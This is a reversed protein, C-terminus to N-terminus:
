ITKYNLGQKIPSPSTIPSDGAKNAKFNQNGTYSTVNFVLTVETVLWDGSNTPRNFKITKPTSNIGASPVDGSLVYECDTLGPNQCDVLGSSTNAIGDNSIEIPTPPKGSISITATKTYGTTSETYTIQAGKALIQGKGKLQFSDGKKITVDDFRYETGGYIIVAYGIKGDFSIGSFPNITIDYPRSNQITLYLDEGNQNAAKCILVALGSCAYGSPAGVVSFLIGVVTVILLLAWGYTMLYELGAQSMEATKRLIKRPM